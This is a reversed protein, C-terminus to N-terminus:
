VGEPKGLVEDFVATVHAVLHPQQDPTFDVLAQELEWELAARLEAPDMKLRLGAEALGRFARKVGLLPSGLPEQDFLLFAQDTVAEIRALQDLTIDPDHLCERLGDTAEALERFDDALADREDDTLGALALEALLLLDPNLQGEDFAM